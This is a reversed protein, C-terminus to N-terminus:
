NDRMTIKDSGVSSFSSGSSSPSRPPLTVFWRCGQSVSRKRKIRSRSWVKEEAGESLKWNVKDLPANELDPRELPGDTWAQSVM